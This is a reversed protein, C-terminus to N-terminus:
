RRRVKVTWVVEVTRGLIGPSFVLSFHVQFRPNLLNRFRPFGRYVFPSVGISKDFFRDRRGEVVCRLTGGGIPAGAVIAARYGRRSELSVWGKVVVKLELEM